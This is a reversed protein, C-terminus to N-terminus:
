QKSHYIWCHVTQEYHKKSNTKDKQITYGVIFDDTIIHAHMNIIM